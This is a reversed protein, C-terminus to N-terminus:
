DSEPEEDFTEPPTIVVESNSIPTVTPEDELADKDEIEELNEPDFNPDEIAEVFSILGQSINHKRRM